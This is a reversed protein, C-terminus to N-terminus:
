PKKIIESYTTHHMDLINNPNRAFIYINPADITNDLKDANGVINATYM